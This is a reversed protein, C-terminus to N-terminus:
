STEDLSRLDRDAAQTLQLRLDAYIKRPTEPPPLAGVIGCHGEYGALTTNPHPLHVVDLRAKNAGELPLLCRISRITEVSLTAYHTYKARSQQAMFQLSQAPTTLAHNWVTLSRSESTRDESSPEFSAPNVNGDITLRVNRFVQIEPSLFAVEQESHM